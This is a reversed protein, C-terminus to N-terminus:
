DAMSWNENINVGCVVASQKYQKMIPMSWGGFSVFDNFSPFGDYLRPYRYPIIM